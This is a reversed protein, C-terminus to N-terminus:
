FPYTTTNSHPCQNTFNQIVKIKRSMDFDKKYPTVARDYANKAPKCNPDSNLIQNAICYNYECALRQNISLTNITRSSSNTQTSSNNKYTSVKFAEPVKPVQCGALVFALGLGILINKKM